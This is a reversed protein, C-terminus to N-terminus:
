YALFRRNVWGALWGGARCHHGTAGAAAAGATVAAAASVVPLHDAAAAALIVARESPVVDAAPAALHCHCHLDGAGTATRESIGGPSSVPRQILPFDHM